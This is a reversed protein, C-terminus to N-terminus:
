GTAFDGEGFKDVGTGRMTKSFTPHHDQVSYLTRYQLRSDRGFETLLLWGTRTILVTGEGITGGIREGDEQKEM